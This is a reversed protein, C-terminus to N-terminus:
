SHRNVVDCFEKILKRQKEQVGLLDFGSAYAYACLIYDTMFAYEQETLLTLKKYDIDNGKGDRISTVDASYGSVKIDKWIVAEFLFPMLKARITRLGLAIDEKWTLKMGADKLTKRSFCSRCSEYLPYATGKDIITYEESILTWGKSVNTYTTYTKGTQPFGVTLRGETGKSICSGHILLKDNQIQEIATLEKCIFDENVGGTLITPLMRFGQTVEVYEWNTIRLKVPFPYPMEFYISNYGRNYYLEGIKESGKTLTIDPVVKLEM